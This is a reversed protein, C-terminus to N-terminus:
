KPAPVKNFGNAQWATYWDAIGEGTQKEQDYTWTFSTQGDTNPVFMRSRMPKKVGHNRFYVKRERGTDEMHWIESIRAPLINQMAGGLSITIENIVGKDDQTTSEHCVFICHVNSDICVRQVMSACDLMMATRIGYGTMGPTEISAKFGGRDAKGTSIGYHLAQQGFTTLSDVVVTNIGESKILKILDKEILSGQKFDQLMSSKMGSFDAVLIDTSRTLSATGAPDFQLFLKKGPASAALVTKGCAPKGWLLGTFLEVRTVTPQVTISSLQM